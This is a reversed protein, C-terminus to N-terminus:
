KKGRIFGGIIGFLAIMVFWFLIPMGLLQSKWLISFISGFAGTVDSISSM